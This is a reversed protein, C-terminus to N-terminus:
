MFPKLRNQTSKQVHHLIITWNLEKAHLQGTKGVTNTSPARRKGNDIKPGKTFKNVMYTHM